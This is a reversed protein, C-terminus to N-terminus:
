TVMSVPSLGEHLVEPLLLDGHLFAGTLRVQVLSMKESGLEEEIRKRLAHAEQLEERLLEVEEQLSVVQGGDPQQSRIQELEKQLKTVESGLSANATLLQENQTKYEKSQFRCLTPPTAAVRAYRLPAHGGVQEDVKRQLQVIKNEMGTNLNKLHQASRAEIKLQKLQRKARMRRFACQIIIAADRARRFKKRQLWGRVHKQIVMAKHHLMFQPPVGANLLSTM